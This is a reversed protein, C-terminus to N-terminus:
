RKQAQDIGVAAAGEPMETVSVALEKTADFSEVKGDAAFFYAKGFCFFHHENGLRTEPAM